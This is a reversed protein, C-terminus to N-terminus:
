RHHEDPGSDSKRQDAQQKLRAVANQAEQLNRTTEESMLLVISPAEWM